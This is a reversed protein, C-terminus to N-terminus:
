ETIVATLATQKPGERIVTWESWTKEQTIYTFNNPQSPLQELWYMQCGCYYQLM